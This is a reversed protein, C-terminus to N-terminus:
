VMPIRRERPKPAPVVLPASLDAEVPAGATVEGGWAVQLYLGCCLHGYNAHLAPTLDIDREGTSPDVHTAVCRVIPKVVRAEAAGLRVTAGAALSFEAWPAWGEIYVNARFRLPDIPRGLRGALDHVSALNVLSVAGAADDMFRHAGSAELVRLAGRRDEDPIFTELWAAFGARGAEDKLSGAFPAAGEASVSIVGTAEDYATRARALAPISALVTFKQKSLFAPAAPDFGSPGNEVAFLRDCPFAAGAELLATDLREPTFGKVPHRYLAAVTGPM